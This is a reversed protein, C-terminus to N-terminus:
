KNKYKIIKEFKKNGNLDNLHLATLDCDGLDKNYPRDLKILKKGLPPGKKILEPNTTILVDVNKWLENANSVFEYKDFRSSMRSLFFLTPPITLRNEVSKVIFNVKECYKLLLNNIHLDMGKYMLPASGHLEFLYDEYMFRDYMERATILNKEKKKFILDDALAEGTENDVQYFQPNIDEPMDELEKLERTEEVTDEWKYHEFFDFVYPENEPVGDEGFEEVYYKDFQLWKARFIEDIDIGVNVKKNKNFIRM